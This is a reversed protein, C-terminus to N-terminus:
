ISNNSRPKQLHLTLRLVRFLALRNVTYVLDDADLEITIVSQSSSPSQLTVAVDHKEQFDYPINFSAWHKGFGKLWYKTSRGELTRNLDEEYLKVPSQGLCYGKSEGCMGPNLTFGRHSVDVQNCGGGFKEKDILLWHDRSLTWEEADTKNRGHDYAVLLKKTQSYDPAPQSQFSGIYTVTVSKDPTSAGQTRTGVRIHYTCVGDQVQKGNACFLSGEPATITALVSRFIFMRLLNYKLYWKNPIRM